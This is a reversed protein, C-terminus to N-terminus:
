FTAQHFNWGIWAWLEASLGFCNQRLQFMALVAFSLTSVFHTLTWWPYRDSLPRTETGKPLARTARIAISGGYVYLLLLAVIAAFQAVRLIGGQLSDKPEM